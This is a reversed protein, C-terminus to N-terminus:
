CPVGTEVYVVCFVYRGRACYGQLAADGNIRVRSTTCCDALKRIQGDCCRYWAGQTVVDIGFREPVKDECLRSRPAEPLPLGSRDVLPEGSESVPAGSADVLRGLDDVPRGDKPRVPRGAQDVRPLDFPSPCSGTTWYHGCFGFWPGRREAGPVVRQAEGAKPAVMGVAAAAVGALFSRRTTSSALRRALSRSAGDAASRSRM